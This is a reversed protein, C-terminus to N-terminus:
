HRSPGKRKKQEKKVEPSIKIAFAGDGKMPISSIDLDEEDPHPWGLKVGFYLAALEYVATEQEFDQVRALVELGDYVIFTTIPHSANLHYLGTLNGEAVVRGAQDTPIEIIGLIRSKAKADSTAEAFNFTARSKPRHTHARKKTPEGEQKVAPNNQFPKKEDDSDIVEQKITRDIAERKIKRDSQERKIQSWTASQPYMGSSM